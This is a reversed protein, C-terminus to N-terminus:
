FCGAKVAWFGAALLCLVWIWLGSELGSVGEVSGVVVWWRGLAGDLLGARSVGQVAGFRM